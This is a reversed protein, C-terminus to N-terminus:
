PKPLSDTFTAGSPISGLHETLLENEGMWGGGGGDALGSINRSERAGDYAWIWRFGRPNTDSNTDLRRTTRRRHSLANRNLPWSACTM